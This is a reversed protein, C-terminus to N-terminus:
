FVVQSKSSYITFNQHKRPKTGDTSKPNGPASEAFRVPAADARETLEIFYGGRFSFFSAILALVV